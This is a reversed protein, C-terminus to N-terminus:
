SEVVIVLILNLKSSRDLIRSISSILQGCSSIYVSFLIFNYVFYQSLYIYATVIM